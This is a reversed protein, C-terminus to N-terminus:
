SWKRAKTSLSSRVQTDSSVFFCWKVALGPVLAQSFLLGGSRYRKAKCWPTCRQSSVNRAVAQCSPGIRVNANEYELLFGAEGPPSTM